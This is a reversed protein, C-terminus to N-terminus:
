SELIPTPEPLAFMQSLRDSLRRALAKVRQPRPRQHVQAAEAVRLRHMELVAYDHITVM